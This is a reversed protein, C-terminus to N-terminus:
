QVNYNILSEKINTEFYQPIPVTVGINPFDALEYKIDTNNYIMGVGDKFHLTAIVLDQPNLITHSVPVGLVTKEAKVKANLTIVSSRVQQYNNNLVNLSNHVAGAKATITYEVVYNIGHLHPVTHTGTRSDLLQGTSATKNYLVFDELVISQGTIDPFIDQLDIAGYYVLKSGDVRTQGNDLIGSYFGKAPTNLGYSTYQVSNIYSKGDIYLSDVGANNADKQVNYRWYSGNQEPYFDPTVGTNNGTNSSDDSSCGAWVCASLLFFMM